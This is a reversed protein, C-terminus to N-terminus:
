NTPIYSIIMQLLLSSSSWNEFTSNNGGLLLKYMYLTSLKILVWWCMKIWGSFQYLQGKFEASWISIDDVVVRKNLETLCHNWYPDFQWLILSVPIILKSTPVSSHLNSKIELTFKFNLILNENISWM